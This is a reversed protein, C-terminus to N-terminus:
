SLQSGLVQCITLGRPAVHNDTLAEWEALNQVQGRLIPPLLPLAPGWLGPHRLGLLSYTEM